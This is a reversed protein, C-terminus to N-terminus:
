RLRVDVRLTYPAIGTVDGIFVAGDSSRVTCGEGKEVQQGPKREAQIHLGGAEIEDATQESTLEM